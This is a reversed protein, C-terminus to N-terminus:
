AKPAERDPGGVRTGWKGFAYLIMGLLAFPVLFVWLVFGDTAGYYALAGIMAVLWLVMAVLYGTLQSTRKRFKSELSQLFFAAEDPSLKAIAEELAKSDINERVPDSARDPVAKAM